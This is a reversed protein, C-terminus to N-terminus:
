NSWHGQLLIALTSLLVVDVRLHPQNIHILTM